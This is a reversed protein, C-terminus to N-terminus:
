RRRRRLLPRAAAALVLLAAILGLPVLAAGLVTQAATCSAANAGCDFGGSRAYLELDLVFLLVVGVAALTLPATM